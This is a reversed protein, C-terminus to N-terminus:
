KSALNSVRGNEGSPISVVRRLLTHKQTTVLAFVVKEDRTRRQNNM